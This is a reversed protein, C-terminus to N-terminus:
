TPMKMRAKQFTQKLVSRWNRRGVPIPVAPFFDQVVAGIVNGILGAM